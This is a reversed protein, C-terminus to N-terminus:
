NLRDIYITKTFGNPVTFNRIAFIVYGSANSDQKDIQIDKLNITANSFNFDFEVITINGDKLEMREVKNFIRSLDTSNEIIISLNLTSTNILNQTSIIRDLSDNIGDNDSDIDKRDLITVKFIKYDSLYGDSTNAKIIYDGSDITTTKWSFISGTQSFKTSNVSYSLNDNNQDVATVNIAILETENLEIDTINGLVPRNNVKIVEKAINNSKNSEEVFGDFDAIANLELDSVNFFGLSYLKNDGAALRSISANGSYTSNSSIGLFVNYANKSGINAITINATFNNIGYHYEPSIHISLDIEPLPPNDFNSYEYNKTTHCNSLHDAINNGKVLKAYKLIFPGDLKKSYIETGNFELIISNKAPLLGWTKEEKQIFNGYLDYLASEVLYSGADKIELTMNLSLFDYLGNNDADFGYDSFSYFYSDPSFDRYDYHATLYNIGIFNGNLSIGTLNFKGAYHTNKIAENDFSIIIENAGENITKNTKSFIKSRNYALYSIIEYDNNRTFNITINLQLSNNGTLKDSINLISIGKEYNAYYDTDIEEKFYKLSYNQGYIKITYDFKNNSLFETPFSINFRNIGSGLIKSTENTIWNENYISVVFLYTGPSGDTELEIMLTDNIGDDDNDGMFDKHSTVNITPTFFNFNFLSILENLSIASIVPISLVFLVALVLSYRRFKINTNFKNFEAFIPVYQKNCFNVETGIIQKM